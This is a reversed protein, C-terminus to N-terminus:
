QRAFDSLCIFVPLSWIHTKEWVGSAAELKQFISDFITHNSDTSEFTLNMLMYISFDIKNCPEILRYNSKTQISQLKVPQKFSYYNSHVAIPNTKHFQSMYHPVWRSEFTICEFGYHKAVVCWFTQILTACEMCAADAIGFTDVANSTCTWEVNTMMEDM